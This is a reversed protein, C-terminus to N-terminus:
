LPLNFMMAALRDVACISVWLEAAEKTRERQSLSVNTEPQTDFAKLQHMARPLGILEALPIIRRLSIWVKQTRTGVLQLRLWFLSAELGDVSAALVDDKVIAVEVACSVQRIYSAGGQVSSLLMSLQAPPIQHITM